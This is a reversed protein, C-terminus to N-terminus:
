ESDDSDHYYNYYGYGGYYSHKKGYYGYYSKGYYSSDSPVTGNLLLCLHKFHKVETLDLLDRLLNKSFLGARVVFITRDAYPAFIMTDVVINVPPCDIFIYDYEKKAETMLRELRPGELLEAPNPPLKGVPLIDLNPHDPVNIVYENWNDTDGRLFNSIGHSPEGVMMSTSGHRMDGDIILVRKHKLAFSAGLNATLFSKGSGPNFSTTIIVSGEGDHKETMFDLNNRTVRFAENIVSRNGERVIIPVPSEKEKDKRSERKRFRKLFKFKPLPSTKHDYPIEGAYPLPIMDLDERSHVKTDLRMMLFIYLAPIALGILFGGVTIVGKRPAIPYHSPTPPTIVRTNHATFAQTLENEELKQLLFMYLSEKVKQQREASLLYKAQGPASAVHSRSDSLSTETNALSTNLSVIRSNVAKIISERIGRLANNYDQVVPHSESSNALYNDRDLLMNNYKNIQTEIDLDGIGTNAPIVSNAYSPNTLYDRVYKAMALRNNLELLQQDTAMSKSFYVSATEDVNPVMNDEKYTSIDSDVTGLEKEIVILRDHIFRSTAVAVQNKDAVWEENYMEIIGNLVAKARETNVDTISLDIVDAYKNPQSGSMRKYFDDSASSFPNHFVQITVNKTLKGTFKANPRIIVRGIPSKHADFGTRTSLVSNYTVLDENEVKKEFKSLTCQGDPKLTVIFSAYEEPKIDPLEVDIPLSTGYLTTPHFSGPEQYDMQLNLRRVVREMLAPSTFAFLENDVDTSSAVLGMSSFANSIDSSAGSQQNKILVSASCSYVPEQRLAYFVAIGTCIVVSLVFWPWRRMCKYFFDMFHFLDMKAESTTAQQQPAATSNLTQEVNQNQLEQSDM